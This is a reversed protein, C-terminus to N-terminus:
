KKKEFVMVRPPSNGRVSEVSLTQGDASLSRTETRVVKTGAVAGESTWSTVLKGDVWKSVTEAHENMAGENMVPKGGLDFNVQRAIDSGQFSAKSDVTLKAPTQVITLTEQMSAMMGINKGKAANFVWTGSFDPVSQAVAATVFGLAAVVFFLSIRQIKM